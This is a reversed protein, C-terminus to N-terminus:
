GPLQRVQCTLPRPDTRWTLCTSSERKFSTAPPATPQGRTLALRAPAQAPDTGGLPGVHVTSAGVQAPQSTRVRAPCSASRSAASNPSGNGSKSASAILAVQSACALVHSRVLGSLGDAVTTMGRWDWGLDELGPYRSMGVTRSWCAASDSCCGDQDGAAVTPHRLAGSSPRFRPQWPRTM